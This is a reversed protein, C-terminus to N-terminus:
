KVFFGWWDKKYVYVFLIDIDFIREKMVIDKFIM